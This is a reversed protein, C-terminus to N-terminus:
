GETKKRTEEDLVERVAAILAPESTYKAGYGLNFAYDFGPPNQGQNHQLITELKDLAKALKAEPTAAAEYEDWLSLVEDRLRDPLPQLLQLLDQREKAAKPVGAVQAIAPIDGGVAEGLDHIVCIKILKAFDVDPFSERFLVAMLCLRWTHEATSERRGASTWSNRLTNKLQEAARLFDLVGTLEIADM